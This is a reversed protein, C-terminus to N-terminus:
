RKWFSPSSNVRVCNSSSATAMPILSFVARVQSFRRVLCPFNILISPLPNYARAHTYSHVPFLTGVTGTKNVSATTMEIVVDTKVSVITQGAYLSAKNLARRFCGCYSEGGVTHILTAKIRLRLRVPTASTRSVFLDM